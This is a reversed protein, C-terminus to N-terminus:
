PPTAMVCESRRRSVWRVRSARSPVRDRYYSRLTAPWLLAEDPSSYEIAGSRM